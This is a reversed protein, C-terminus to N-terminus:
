VKDLVRYWSGFDCWLFLLLVLCAFWFLFTWVVVCTIGYVHLSNEAYSPLPHSPPSRAQTIQVTTYMNLYSKQSVSCLVFLLSCTM